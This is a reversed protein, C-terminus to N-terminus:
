GGHVEARRVCEYREVSARPSGGNPAARSSASGHQSVGTVLPDRGIAPGRNHSPTAIGDLRTRRDLRRAGQSGPRCRLGPVSGSGPSGSPSSTRRPLHIAQGGNPLRSRRRLSGRHERGDLEAATAPGSEAPPLIETTTLTMPDQEPQRHHAAGFRGCRRKCRAQLTPAPRSCAAIAVIPFMVFVVVVDCAM